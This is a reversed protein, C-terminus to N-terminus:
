SERVVDVVPDAAQVQLSHASRCILDKEANNRAMCGRVLLLPLRPNLCM